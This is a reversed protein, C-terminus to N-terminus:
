SHSHGCDACKRVKVMIVPGNKSATTGYNGKDGGFDDSSTWTNDLAVGSAMLGGCKFCTNKIVEELIAQTIFNPFEWYDIEFTGGLKSFVNVLSEIVLFRSNESEFVVKIKSEDLSHTITFKM